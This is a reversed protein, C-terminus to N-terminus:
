KVCTYMTCIGFTLPKYTVNSFGVSKAKAVFEEGEPFAAVSQPLYTYANTSRSLMKGLLPLINKFYFWYLRSFVPNTPKSFELVVMPGGPKLVRQMEALGALLNEFNRVGFSVTVADFEADQFPLKESDAQQLVIRNTLQKQNLKIQGFDLMGQSIDVGVVSAQPIKILEIALDATGTAVDLIRKAGFSNVNKRVKTRWSYDVGLSLFHNLFDYRPSINDFMEEVQQKKSADSNPNPKVQSTVIINCIYAIELATVSSEIRLCV